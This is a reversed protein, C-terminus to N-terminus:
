VDRLSSCIITAGNNKFSCLKIAVGPTKGAQRVKVTGVTPCQLRQTGPLLPLGHGMQPERPTGPPMDRDPTKLSCRELLRAIELQTSTLRPGPEGTHLPTLAQLPSSPDPREM